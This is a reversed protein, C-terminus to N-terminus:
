GWVITQDNKALVTIAKNHILDNFHHTIQQRLLDGDSSNNAALGIYRNRGSHKAAYLARDALDIVQEWSLATPQACFFPFCAFGISCTKKLLRGDPLRFDYQEISARIREAMLPAQDRHSFRSVVLFEEGGWRVICDSERCVSTLLESIQVLLQDGATHGYLDNVPKFFDLDLLFFTLDSHAPAIPQNLNKSAYSRQIEAVDMPMIKQLYRRNSLGTLPDSLSIAELNVYAQELEVNKLRLEATREAVKNELERSIQRARVVKQHEHRVFLLLLGLFTAVYLSYAWWTQWPPPLITLTLARGHHNWIGDNNSAKVRFQYTGAPLNTYLASRHNGVNRWQDDFGELKYAYENKEPDRYNLAAFNLSLMTKTHDLTIAQTQNISASLIKDAGGIPVKQTFLRFDTLVVDPANNNMLIEDVNIIYLGSIAGIAIDGNHLTIAAGTAIGGILQGGYRTHNKVQLTDPNFMVIGNNTGLWLNGQRDETIARIGQDAFGEKLGYVTFDDSEPHYLHLGVDSGFWLRGKHDEAIALISNNRLSRPNNADSLYRKFSHTTRDMLNLGSASGVWLRKHSDEFVCWIVTSSITSPDEIVHPYFSYLGTKKDFKTLGNFHTAIWLVKDSDEYISWIMQDNLLDSTRVGRRTQTTDTPVEDFSDTIPNYLLIGHGWSGFRIQGDSDIQGNLVSNSNIKPKNGALSYHTFTDTALNLKNVGGAGIWLDGDRDQEIAEVNNDLLGNSKTYYRIAATSRDYINVGSPYTGVWIDGVKDEYIRRVSNFSLYGPRDDQRTFRLFQDHEADYLSIGGVDSGTWVWGQRDVYINRTINDGVSNPDNPDHQYHKIVGTAPNFRYIGADGGAWIHGDHGRALLTIMNDVRSSPKSPAPVILTSQRTRWDIRMFGEDIGVWLDGQPEVLIDYIVRGALRQPHDIQEGLNQVEFTQTDLLALSQNHGVLLQGDLSEALAYIAGRLILEGQANRVPLLKELQRSYRYLGSRTAVWLNHHRDELLELVQTMPAASDADDAVAIGLFEYGDYRLLANRGGLWMFGESDQLIAQVEGLAIDVNQMVNRFQIKQPYHSKQSAGAPLTAALVETCMVSLLVNVFLSISGWVGLRYLLIRRLKPLIKPANVNLM